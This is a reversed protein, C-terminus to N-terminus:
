ARASVSSSSSAAAVAKAAISGSTTPASAPRSASDFVPVRHRLAPDRSADIGTREDWYLPFYGDIKQMGNTRDDITPVPGPRAPPAQQAGIPALAMLVTVALFVSFKAM